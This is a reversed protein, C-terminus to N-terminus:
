KGLSFAVVLDEPTQQFEKSVSARITGALERLPKADYVTPFVVTVSALRGNSWNFGVRPKVGTSEELDKEVASAHKFGETVTNVADCATLSIAVIVISTIKFM